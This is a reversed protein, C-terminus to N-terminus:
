GVIGFVPRVGVDSRTALLSSPIHRVSICTYHNRDQINRLWCDNSYSDLCIMMPNLAFLALQVKGAGCGEFYVYEGSTTRGVTSAIHSGYVMAETMLEVDADMFIRSIPAEDSNYGDNVLERYKLIGNEKKIFQQVMEKATGHLVSTRGECTNYGTTFPISGMMRCNLLPMDPVIVVHHQNVNPITENDDGVGWWYDFDAIRWIRGGVEQWYDGIYMNDFSGSRIAEWQAETVESGLYEGRFINRRMGLPMDRGWPLDSHIKSEFDSYSMKKVTGSQLGIMLYDEDAVADTEPLKSFDIRNKAMKENLTNLFDVFKMKGNGSTENGILISDVKNVVETKVTLNEFLHPSTILCEMLADWTITKTGNAGNFLFIDGPQLDTLTQYDKINM